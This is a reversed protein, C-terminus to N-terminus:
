QSQVGILISTGKWLSLVTVLEGGVAGSIIGRHTIGNVAYIGNYYKESSNLLVLRGISIRPEFMMKVDLRNEYRRPTELLGTEATILFPDTDTEIYENKGIVNAKENDIFSNADPVLHNISEWSNGMLTAGRTSQEGSAVDGIAGLAVNPMTRIVNSILNRIDYGSPVTMSVQGNIQGFGGDFAEIETIWDQKQRYSYASVINGQFIIPLQPDSEYGASLIIQRYVNTSYRDHFVRRRSEQNLNMIRFYARNSSSLTARQIDLFLTMPYNVIVADGGTQANTGPRNEFTVEQTDSLPTASTPSIPEDTVQIALSYTRGFKIGSSVKVPTGQVLGFPM